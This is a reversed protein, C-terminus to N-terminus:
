ILWDYKFAQLGFPCHLGRMRPESLVTSSGKKLLVKFNMSVIELLKFFAQSVYDSSKLM